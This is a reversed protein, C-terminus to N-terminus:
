EHPVVMNSRCKNCTGQYQAGEDLLAVDNGCNPSDCKRIIREMKIPLQCGICIGEYCSGNLVLANEKVCSPCHLIAEIKSETKKPPPVRKRKLAIEHVAVRIREPRPSRDDIVDYGTPINTIQDSGPLTIGTQFVKLVRAEQGVVLECTAGERDDLRIITVIDESEIVNSKDVKSLIEKAKEKAAEVGIEIKTKLFLLESEEQLPPSSEKVTPSISYLDQYLASIPKDASYPVRIQKGNDFKVLLIVNRPVGGFFISDDEM